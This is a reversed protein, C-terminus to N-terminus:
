RFYFKGLFYIKRLFFKGFFIQSIKKRSFLNAFIKKQQFFKEPFFKNWSYLQSLLKLNWLDDM